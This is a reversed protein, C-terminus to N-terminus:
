QPLPVGNQFYELLQFSVEGIQDRSILDNRLNRLAYNLPDPYAITSVPIYNGRWRGKGFQGAGGRLLVSYVEKLKEKDAGHTSMVSSVEVDSECFAFLEELAKDDSDDDMLERFDRPGTRGLIRSLRKLKSKKSSGFIGM